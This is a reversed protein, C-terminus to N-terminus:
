EYGPLTEPPTMFREEDEEEEEEEIGSQLVGLSTVSSDAAAYRRDDGPVDQITFM